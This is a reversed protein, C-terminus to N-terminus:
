EILQTIQPRISFHITILLWEYTVKVPFFSHFSTNSYIVLPNKLKSSFFNSEKSARCSIWIKFLSSHAKEIEFCYPATWLYGRRGWDWRMKMIHVYIHWWNGFFPPPPTTIMRLVELKNLLSDRPWKYSQMHFKYDSWVVTCTM